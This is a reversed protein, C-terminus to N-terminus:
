DAAAVFADLAVFMEEIARELDAVADPIQAVERNGAVSELAAAAAAARKAGLNAVSGKITHAVKRVADADAARTAARIQQLRDPCDARLIEVVSKLFETDGGVRALVDPGDVVPLEPKNVEVPTPERRPQGSAGLVEAIVARLQDMQIPKSAYGDMGGALCNERDGKMAHATLAIIPLRRGTQKEAERIAATAELGDMEPMQVDMLVLDVKERGALEVAERGNGAILLTHQDRELVRAMLQQNVYNDEALLIRLGRVTPQEAVVAAPKVRVRTGESALGPVIIDIIADLLESQKIPKVLYGSAEVERCRSSARDCDASSLLLIRCSDYPSNERIKAAVQFGDLEPMHVDLLVLEIPENQSHAHGLAALAEHGGAVVTPRMKWNRAMEELIVRNTPHDDVILVRLGEFSPVATNTPRRAAQQDQPLACHITFRFESGKGVESTVSIQGGMMEVLRSCITLGLGTGGYKRTTSGDAQTFAEFIQAQKEPPIGVGTDRITVLLDCTEPGRAPVEVAVVVEGADTFKLANGVLNVLIQRLRGEDAVVLDPVEPAVRYALEVGKQHARLGFLKLADGITDRPDFTIPDIHLKGAEIKSFDLIDNLVTMLSDASTQVLELHRRQDPSLETELLLDTLGIIGNMPTRIEHSMNAVFESKARSALEATNKAEITERVVQHVTKSLRHGYLTTGLVMGIVLVGIVAEMRRLQLTHGRQAQFFDEQIQSVHTRINSLLVGSRTLYRDMVAMHSAAVDRNGARFHTFISRSEEVMGQVALALSDLLEDVEGRRAAPVHEAFDQRVHELRDQFQRLAADLRQSEADPQQTDFVDNGPANVAAALEGLDSLQGARGAWQESHETSLSYLGTLRHNLYLSVSVTLVDFAALAYYVYHWRTAGATSRATMEMGWFFLSKLHWRAEPLSVCDYTM